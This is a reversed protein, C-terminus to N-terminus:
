IWRLKFAMADIDSKFYFAKANGRGTVKNYWLTNEMDYIPGLSFKRGSRKKSKIEKFTLQIVGFEKICWRRAEEASELNDLLIRHAFYKMVDM